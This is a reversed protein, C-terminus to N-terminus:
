NASPSQLVFIVVFPRPNQQQIAQSRSSSRTLALKQNTCYFVFIPQGQCQNRHVPENHRGPARAPPTNKQGRRYPWARVAGGQVLWRSGTCRGGGHSQHRAPQKVKVAGAQGPFRPPGRLPVAPVRRAGVGRARRWRGQRAEAAGGERGPRALLERGGRRGGGGRGASALLCFAVTCSTKQLAPWVPKRWSYPSFDAV